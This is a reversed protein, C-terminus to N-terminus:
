KKMGAEYLMKLSVVGAAPAVFVVVYALMGPVYFGIAPIVRLVDSLSSAVILFAISAILFTTEENNRINLFGVIIGLAGLILVVVSDDPVLFGAILSMLIGLAFAGSGIQKVTFLDVNKSSSKSAM